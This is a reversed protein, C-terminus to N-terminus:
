GLEPWALCHLQLGLRAPLRDELMWRALAAPALRGAVPSLAVAARDPLRHRRITDLAYDYDARDALVLKVEDRPGLRALNPWCMRDAMGSSPCKVDLVVAVRPDVAETPLAGSTELVVQLGADCLRRLLEPAAAQALPEGGTVLVHHLGAAVAEAVVADLERPAGCRPARAWATDCWACELPCGSLRLLWCPYGALASEGQLTALAEAVVVQNSV